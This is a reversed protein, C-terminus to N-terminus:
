KRRVKGFMRIGCEKLKRFDEIEGRKEGDEKGDGRGFLVSDWLDAVSSGALSRAYIGEWHANVRELNARREPERRAVHERHERWGEEEEEAEKRREIARALGIKTRRERWFAANERPTGTGPAKSPIDGDDWEPNSDRQLTPFPRPSKVSRPIQNNLHHKEARAQRIPRPSTTVKQEGRELQPEDNVHGSSVEIERGSHTVARGTMKQGISLRDILPIDVNSDNSSNDARHPVSSAKLYTQSRKSLGTYGESEESANRPLLDYSYTNNESENGDGGRIYEDSEKEQTM